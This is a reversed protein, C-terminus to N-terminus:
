RYRPFAEICGLELYDDHCLLRTINQIRSLEKLYYHCMCTSSILRRAIRQLLSDFIIEFELKTAKQLFRHLFIRCLIRLKENFIVLVNNFLM